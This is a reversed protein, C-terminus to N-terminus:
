DEEITIKPTTSQNDLKELEAVVNRAIQLFSAARDSKPDSIVVPRGSDSTERIQTHLPIEGIFNLGMNEATLKAGDHGFIHDKHGCNSCKFYSMNEVVGLIPVNLKRFMNVGRKVDILAIDQPTSVIVAGSLHVRQCISLQADGTGPPLDVVLIDLEGWDVQHLLQDVATMVMPGRWITPADEQVLFGMSMTKVGYNSKPILKRTAENVQPKGSLNMMRHISPGYIDADMLGVSKQCFSSLALALNTAVTSKGVGGKGSSVVIVDKVGELKPGLTKQNNTSFQRTM